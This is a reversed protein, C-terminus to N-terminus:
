AVSIKRVKEYLEFLIGSGL